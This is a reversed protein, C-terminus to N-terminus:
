FSAVRYRLADHRHCRSTSETSRPREPHCRTRAPGDGRNVGSPRTGVSEQGRDPGAARSRGTTVVSRSTRHELGDALTEARDLVAELPLPFQGLLVDVLRQPVDADRQQLRVDVELDDAAEDAPDLLLGEALDDLDDGAGAVVLALHRRAIV